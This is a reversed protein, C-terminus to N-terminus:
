LTETPIHYTPKNGLIKWSVFKINSYKVSTKLTIPYPTLFSNLGHNKIDGIYIFYAKDPELKINNFLITDRQPIHPIIENRTTHGVTAM